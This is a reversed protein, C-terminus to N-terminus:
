GLPCLVWPASLPERVGRPRPAPPLCRGLPGGAWLASLCRLPGPQQQPPPSCRARPSLSEGLVRLELEWADVGASNSAECRYVGADLTQIAAFHISGELGGGQLAVGDKSWTLRPKPTGEAVCNLDLAEGTLAKLVRPGPQVEPPVSLAM